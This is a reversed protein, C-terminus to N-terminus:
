LSIEHWSLDELEQGSLFPKKKEKKLLATGVDTLSKKTIRRPINKQCPYTRLKKHRSKESRVRNKPIIHSIEREILMRM